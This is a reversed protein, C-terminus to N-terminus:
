GVHKRHQNDKAAHTPKTEGNVDARHHGRADRQSDGDSAPGRSMEAAEGRPIPSSLLSSDAPPSAPSTALESNRTSLPPLSRPSRPESQRYAAGTQRLLARAAKNATERDRPTEYLTRCQDALTTIAIQRSQAARNEARLNALENADAIFQRIAPQKCWTTLQPLTLKHRVAIISLDLNSDLLDILLEKVNVTTDDIQPDIPNPTSLM